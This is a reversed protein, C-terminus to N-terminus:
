AIIGDTFLYIYSLSKGGFCLHNGHAVINTSRPAWSVECLSINFLM